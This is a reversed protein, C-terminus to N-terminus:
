ISSRHAPYGNRIKTGMSLMPSAPSPMPSAPLKGVHPSPLLKRNMHRHQANPVGKSPLPSTAMKGVYPGPLQEKKKKKDRHQATPVGSIAPTIYGKQECTPWTAM